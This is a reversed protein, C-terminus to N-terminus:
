NGEEDIKTGKCGRRKGEKGKLKKELKDRGMKREGVEYRPRKEMRDERGTRKGKDKM